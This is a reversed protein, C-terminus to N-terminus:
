FTIEKSKSIKMFILLSITTLITLITALAAAYGYNGRTVFTYIALTLTVTKSSYLIIASSLETIITVWSLIAGSIIGNSMMPVTIKFFTKIKSAGLSIAAEETALPIQQLTAVSSRITYPLRRICLAIVMITITGTLVIPKKNFTMVLAIGVVSGPIIYPLMSITDIAQTIINSRRVVLYAILIAIFVVTVLALGGIIFTNPISEGMRKISTKYSNFSYGPVFIKGSTNQFSQYVIYLQPLFAVGVVTYAYLHMLFGKFGSAKEREIPNLANMAFAYRNSLMKQILFIVGTIVIAIVSIAAAFSYNSGTEGLFQNYIEVPFVRYGEGILLPTGFDAFARMFVLLAAALITPMCLPLIVKFFRCIGMCGLNSSAELLSNDINKLAGSVYLFVLPYLQLTLVLVIGNFGYINPITIGFVSKFFTTIIGARGLLQIWAYAGIFPASMSCLIVLVQILTKGKLEYFNYFYALPIGVILSLATTVISVNFSRILTDSYYKNSFFKSFWEISLNGKEGLFSNRLLTFMPYILFIAYAIFIVIYAVAWIDFLKRKAM